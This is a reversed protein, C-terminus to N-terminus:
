GDSGKGEGGGEGGMVGVGLFGSIYKKDKHITQQIRFHVDISHKPAVTMM